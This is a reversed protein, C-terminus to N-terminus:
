NIITIIESDYKKDKIKGVSRCTRIENVIKNKVPIKHTAKKLYWEYEIDVHGFDLARFGKKSLDYALVTATPGLAIIFLSEKDCSICNNLIESYKSFANKSPCLIRKISKASNFLDNGVGLRSGNGEVIVINKNKWLDKLEEFFEDHDISPLYELYSRSVGTDAYCKNLDIIKYIKDRNYYLYKYWFKSHDPNHNDLSGFVDPIGCLINSDNSILIDKLRKQLNVDYKQFPISEGFIINFEGDGYRCISKNSNVLEDLTETCSLVKPKKSATTEYIKNANKYFDDSKKNKTIKIKFIKFLKLTIRYDDSNEVKAVPIFDFLLYMLVNDIEKIKLLPINFFSYSYKVLTREKESLKLNNENFFAVMKKKAYYNDQQKKKSTKKVISNNNVRYYYNTGDVTVIKNAQKIINPLWIIDEFYVNPTFHENQVIHSKYLKNWVYCIKPIFCASIKEQLTTYVKNEYKVRYKKNYKRWRIISSVAIDADNEIASNYLKEYFNLDVWDDSDVFGIYEGKAIDIGSNRAVSVGANDQNIITIRNDKKSYKELIEQSTDTSGDNVCIIEIDKLTQNILSDLCKELYKEVNYVPVIISVKIM